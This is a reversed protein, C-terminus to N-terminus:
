RVTRSDYYPNTTLLEVPSNNSHDKAEMTYIYYWRGHAGWIRQSPAPLFEVDWRPCTQKGELPALSVPASFSTKSQGQKPSKGYQTLLGLKKGGNEHSNPLPGVIGTLPMSGILWQVMRGPISWGLPGGSGVWSLPLAEPLWGSIEMQRLHSRVQVGKMFRWPLQTGVFLNALFTKYISTSRAIGRECSTAYNWPGIHAECVLRPSFQDGPDTTPPTKCVRTCANRWNCPTYRLSRLPCIALDRDFM